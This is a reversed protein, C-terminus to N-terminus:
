FFARVEVQGTQYLRTRWPERRGRYSLTAMVHGTVRYTLFLNWRVTRGPQDGGLMEYPLTRNEPSSQIRGMELEARLHGRQRFAYSFRPLLFVSTARTVPDPTRDQGLKVRAKLAIEIKQRPRYSTELTWSHVHIRRDSLRATYEKTERLHQYEALLGVPKWLSGKIRVGTEEMHRILGEQILQYDESDDKRYRLRLTFGSAPPTYEMDTHFSLLGMVTTSDEGWRPFLASRNVIGFDRERDRREIRVISRSQWSALFAKIGKKDKWVRSADWRFEAGLKLDNVPLFTGTQITRVVIDGDSDPILEGLDEDYRYSGQGEGVRITDRVMESVQTSSFRYHLTGQFLRRGPSLRVEVDALDSKQDEIEADTYDRNRHTYMFSSTLGSGWQLDLKLRDTRALSNKELSFGSYLRDDRVTEELSATIIGRTMSVVGTWEDFRFGTRLSDIDEKRHEGLYRISPALGWLRGELSGQQRLWYGEQGAGEGTEILEATYWLKPLRNKSLRTTVRKRESRFRSGRRFSGIEGGINWFEFPAYGGSIEYSREGWVTGEEVGWKRGHEVETMRGVPRFADGVSRGNGQFNMKGLGVGLIRVPREDMRLRGSYAFDVNDGDDESSFRNLDRDSVSVEGEISLGKGLDISAGMNAAQHATALPLPIVPLYTGEGQGEYKYIGYGQFSYDGQGSGVYSFRVSYDGGGTGVYRYFVVGSSDVQIYDGLGEGEATVGSVVAEDANDGANELITRYEDTLTVGLPHDKDDAERLVSTRLRIRDDWLRFEGAAGYVEKQFEQDSYEFDVTIRSDSTILRNRTFTLQGNGYEITYDNEEGRTMPEGDIWVRETGALVIIERQGKAGTLQYPGQNAEQGLFHNTTFEGKTAAASVMLKTSGKEVTIMGGQLKRSYSGLESGDVRLVFDGMTTAFGPAKINVFVKDIEQLTQTNGEPQIPTNQDTLSAVVEVQPTIMGSLQLRLGSQLRMGQDTGVTIGRFISGSRQLNEGLEVGKQEEEPKMRYVSPTSVTDAPVSDSPVWHRHVLPLSLPLRRYTVVVSMGSDPPHFFRIEGRLYDVRYDVSDVLPQSDQAVSVSDPILYRHPLVLVTDGGTAEWQLVHRLPDYTRTGQQPYSSTTFALGIFLFRLFFPIGVKTTAYSGARKVAAGVGSPLGM